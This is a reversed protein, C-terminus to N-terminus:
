LVWNEILRDYGLPTTIVVIGPEMSVAEVNEWLHGVLLLMAQKLVEPCTVFGCEFRIRIPNLAALAGSPWSAGQRLVIRGPERVTDVEYVSPALTLPSEGALTYQISTVTQLRGKPLCLSRGPWKDLYADWTQTALARHTLIETHERAARILRALIREADSGGTRVQDCAEQVSVPEVSPPAQLQLQM